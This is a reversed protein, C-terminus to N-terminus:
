IHESRLVEASKPIDGCYYSIIWLPWGALSNRYTSLSVATHIGFLYYEMAYGVMRPINTEYTLKFGRELHVTINNKTCLEAFVKCTAQLLKLGSSYGQIFNSSKVVELLLLIGRCFSFLKSDKALSHM